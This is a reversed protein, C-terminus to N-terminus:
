LTVAVGAQETHVSAYSYIESWIKLENSLKMDM